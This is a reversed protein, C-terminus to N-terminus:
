RGDARYVPWLICRQGLVQKRGIQHRHERCRGFFERVRGRERHWLDPSRRFRRRDALGPTGIEPNSLDVGDMYMGNEKSNSGYATFRSGAEGHATNFGPTQNVMDFYTNRTFPLRELQDITM